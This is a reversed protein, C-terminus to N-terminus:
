TCTLAKERVDIYQVGRHLVMRAEETGPDDQITPYRMMETEYSTM